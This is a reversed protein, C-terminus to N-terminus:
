FPLDITPALSDDEVQWEAEPLQWDLGQKLLWAKALEIAHFSTSV